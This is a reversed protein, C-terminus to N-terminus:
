SGEMTVTLRSVVRRVGPTDAVIRMAHELVDIGSVRGHLTIIDGSTSVTIDERELASDLRIRSEVERALDQDVTRPVAPAGQDRTGAWEVDARPHGGGDGVVLVCGPSAMAAALLALCRLSTGSRM